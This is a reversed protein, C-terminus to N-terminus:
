RQVKADATRIVGLIKTPEDITPPRVVVPRSSDAATFHRGNKSFRDPAAEIRIGAREDKLALQTPFVDSSIKPLQSKSFGHSSVTINRRCVGRKRGVVASRSRPRSRM